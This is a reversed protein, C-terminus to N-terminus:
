VTSSCNSMIVLLPNDGDVYTTCFRVIHSELQEKSDKSECNFNQEISFAKNKNIYGKYQNSTEQALRLQQTEMTRADIEGMNMPTENYIRRRKGPAM